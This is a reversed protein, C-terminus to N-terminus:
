SGPLALVSPQALDSNPTYIAEYVKAVTEAAAPWTFTKVRQLGAQILRDKESPNDILRQTVSAIAEADEPSVMIGADGIVEPLSTVNSTIVPTGCAMAELPTIGFGEYHSPAVLADAVGYLGVLTEKDPKQIYSVRDTLNQSDIFIKQEDTFDAGAKIFHVPANQQCLLALAKLVTFVNKRPHNSGVNLWCFTNANLGYYSRLAEVQPVPLSQYIPDVGNHATTLRAPESGFITMVDKATHDSVTVIHNAQRIGRVCYNWILKSILPLKSQNDLNEPQIYNILDHCTVVTPQSAKSLSYLLHGDSHDVIHYIDIDTRQIHRPFRWYRQYYKGVRSLASGQYESFGPTIEIIEWNPRVQRLGSVLGDAYVDMSISANLARRVIAVRM